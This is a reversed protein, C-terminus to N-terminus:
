VYSFPISSNNYGYLSSGYLSYSPSFPNYHSPSFLVPSFKNGSKTLDRCLQAKTKVKRQKNKNVYTVKIGRAICAKKLANKSQNKCAMSTNTPSNLFSGM